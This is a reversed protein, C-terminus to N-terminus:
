TFGCAKFFVSKGSLPEGTAASAVRVVIQGTLFVEHSYIQKAM